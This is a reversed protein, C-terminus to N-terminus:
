FAFKLHCCHESSTPSHIHGLSDNIVCTKNIEVESRGHLEGIYGDACQIGIIAGEVAGARTAMREDVLGVIAEISKGPGFVAIM